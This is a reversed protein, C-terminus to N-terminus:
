AYFKKILRTMDKLNYRSRSKTPAVLDGHILMKKSHHFYWAGDPENAMVEKALRTLDAKSRPNARVHLYKGTPHALAIVAYGTEATYSSVVQPIAEVTLGIGKGWRTMFRRGRRVADEIALRQEQMILRADLLRFGTETASLSDEGKLGAILQLIASENFFNEPRGIFQGLDGRKVYDALAAVARGRRGAPLHGRRKLDKWILSTASDKKDGKHEDYRGRGVGVGIESAPLKVGGAATPMFRMRAQKLAPDFRKLLWLGAVDDLHPFLHTVLTKM